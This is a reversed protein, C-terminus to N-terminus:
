VSLPSPRSHPLVQVLYFPELHLFLLSLPGSSLTYRPPSLVVITLVAGGLNCSSVSNPSFTPRSILRQGQSSHVGEVGAVAGRWAVVEGESCSQTFFFLVAQTERQQTSGTEVPEKTDHRSHLTSWGRSDGGPDTSCVPGPTLPAPDSPSM